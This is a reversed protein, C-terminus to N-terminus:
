AIWPPACRLTMTPSCRSALRRWGSTSIRIPTSPGAGPVQKRGSLRRFNDVIGNAELLELLTPISREVNVRRRAAWFGEGMTVARVPVDKLRAYPSRKLFLVGQDRWPADASQALM